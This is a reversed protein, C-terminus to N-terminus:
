KALVRLKTSKESPSYVFMNLDQNRLQGSGSKYVKVNAKLYEETEVITCHEFVFSCM